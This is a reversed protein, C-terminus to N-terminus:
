WVIVVILAGRFNYLSINNCVNEIGLHPLKDILVREISQGSASSRGSHETEYTIYVM